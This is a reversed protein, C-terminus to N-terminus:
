LFLPLLLFHCEFSICHHHYFSSSTTPSSEILITERIECLPVPTYKAPSVSVPIIEILDSESCGTKIDVVVAEKTLIEIVVADLPDAVLVRDIQM